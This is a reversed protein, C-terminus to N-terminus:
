NARRVPVANKAVRRSVWARIFDRNGLVVPSLGGKVGCGLRTSFPVGYELPRGVAPPRTFKITPNM